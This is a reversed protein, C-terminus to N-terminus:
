VHALHISAGLSAKSVGEGRGEGGMADEQEGDFLKRGAGSRMGTRIKQPASPSPSVNIFDNLNFTYTGPTTPAGSQAKPAPQPPSRPPTTNTHSPRSPVVSAAPPLLSPATRETPTPPTVRTTPGGPRLTSRDEKMPPQPRYYLPEGTAPDVRLTPERALSRSSRHLDSASGSAAPFLVRGKTQHDGSSGGLSRFAAADQAERDRTTSPRAPSPSEHLFYLLKVAEQDAAMPPASGGGDPGSQSAARTLPRADGPRPPTAPRMDHHSMFSSGPSAVLTGQATTTRTSSQAYQPPVSLTSGVDSGASISSRPSLTGVNISSRSHRLLHTLAAAAEMDVDRSDTTDEAVVAATKRRKAQQKERTSSAKRKGSEAPTRQSQARTREALSTYSQSSGKRTHSTRSSESATQSRERPRSPGNTMKSPAPVPPDEPNHITRARKAPPQSLISAYLSQAANAGAADRGPNQAHQSRSGQGPIATPPAM